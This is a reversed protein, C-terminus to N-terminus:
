PNRWGRLDHDAEDEAQDDAVPDAGVGFLRRGEIHADELREALDEDPHDPHDDRRQQEARQDRADGAGPVELVDAAHAQARDDVELDHRRERQQDPQHGDVQQLGADAHRQRLRGAGRRDGGRRLGPLLDQQVHHRGRHDFGHRGAIDQLDDDEADHERDPEAHDAFFALREDRPGLRQGFRHELHGVDHHKIGRDADARGDRHGDARAAQRDELIQRKEDEREVHRKRHEEPEHEDRHHQHEADRDDTEELRDLLRASIANEVVDLSAASGRAISDTSAKPTGRRM